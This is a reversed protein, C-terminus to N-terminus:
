NKDFKSNKKEFRLVSVAKWWLLRLNYRLWYFKKEPVFGPKLLTLYFIRATQTVFKTFGTKNSKAPKGTISQELRNELLKRNVFRSRDTYHHYHYVTVFEDFVITWGRRLAEIAWLIDEGFEVDPFPLQELASKRYVACVDDLRAIKWLDESNLRAFQRKSFNVYKVSPNSVPRHWQLPNTDKSVPVLQRGAVAMVGPNDFHKIARELCDDTAAYADQVTMAVFQGRALKVGLNRTGSHSFEQPPIKHIRVPFRRAIELTKDTSGSDIIIIETQDAITQSTLASLCHEITKEGNKTPIIVSVIPQM